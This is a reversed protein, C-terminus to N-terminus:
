RIMPSQNWMTIEMCTTRGSTCTGTFTLCGGFAQVCNRRRISMSGAPFVVFTYYFTNTPTGLVMDLISSSNGKTEIAITFWERDPSYPIAMQDVKKVLEHEGWQRLLWGVAGHVGSSPDYRYWDGLQKVLTNRDSEPIDTLPYEGLALLLAYRAKDWRSADSQTAASLQATGESKPRTSIVLLDLLPKVGIGRPKCRFIFQTLAEPDDTYDFVPLVTEREGLRLLSIAANARRQGYGIRAISGMDDPPFKAAIQKLEAMASDSKAKAVLPYLVDYQEPTADALLLTLLEPQNAGFDALANAAGLRLADATQTNKFLAELPSLLQSAVPRLNYRLVPQYEANETILQTAMFQLDQGEWSSAPDIFGALAVGARFRRKTHLQPDRLMAQLRETLTAAHPQLLERIPGIYAVKNSLLEELLPDVMSADRGVLALQAHLKSRQEDITKAETELLPTILEQAQEPVADLQRVIEPVRAPEATILQAVLGEVRSRQQQALVQGRIAFGLMSLIVLTSALWAGRTAHVRGARRMVTQEAAKWKKGDTLRRITLWEWMSPLNRNRPKSTRAATLEQLRLQARGKKTERLKRSLWDHISPVLFDHTLQYFLSSSTSQVVAVQEVPTLLFLKRVLISLLDDFQLKDLESAALLQDYSRVDKIELGEAPLLEALVRMAAPLYRRYQESATRGEFCDVLFQSGIGDLGGLLNLEDISWPRDQMVLALVLDAQEATFRKLTPTPYETYSEAKIRNDPETAQTSAAVAGISSVSETVAQLIQALDDRVDAAAHPRDADRKSLCQM